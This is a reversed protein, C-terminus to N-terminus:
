ELKARRELALLNLQPIRTYDSTIVTLISEFTPKSTKKAAPISFNMGIMSGRAIM